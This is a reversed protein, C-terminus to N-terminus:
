TSSSRASADAADLSAREGSPKQLVFLRPKREDIALEGTIGCCRDLGDPGM